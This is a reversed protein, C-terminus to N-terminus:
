AVSRELGPQTSARNEDQQSAQKIEDLKETLAAVKTRLGTFLVSFKELEFEPISAPGGYRDALFDSHVGKKRMEYAIVSETARAFLEHHNAWYKKGGHSTMSNAQYFFESGKNAFYRRNEVVFNGVREVLEGLRKVSGKININNDSNLKDKVMQVYIQKGDESIPSKFPMVKALFVNIMSDADINFSEGIKTGRLEDVLIGKLVQIKLKRENIRDHSEDSVIQHFVEPYEKRVENIKDTADRLAMGDFVIDIRYKKDYYALGRRDVAQKAEESDLPIALRAFDIIAGMQKAVNILEKRAGQRDNDVGEQSYHSTDTIYPTMLNSKAGSMKYIWNDFAHAWEHALAGAGAKRTFNIVTMGPEFHAMAKGRGRAGWAIGLTGGMGIHYPKIGFFESLDHLADASMDIWTQREKNPVWNGFQGGSLGFHSMFEDSSISKGERWDTMGVREVGFLHAAVNSEQKDQTLSQDDGDEEDDTDVEAEVTSKTRTKKTPMHKDYERNLSQESTEGLAYAAHRIHDSFGWKKQLLGCLGSFDVSYPADLGGDKLLREAPEVIWGRAIEEGFLRQVKYQSTENNIPTVEGAMAVQFTTLINRLDEDSRSMAERAVAIATMYFRVGFETDHGLPSSIHRGGNSVVSSYKVAFANQVMKRFLAVQMDGGAEKVERLDITPWISERRISGGATSSQLALVENFPTSAIQQATVVAYMHKKAGHIVRGFDEIKDKSSGEVYAVKNLVAEQALDSPAEQEAGVEMESSIPAPKELAALEHQEPQENDRQVDNVPEVESSSIVSQDIVEPERYISNIVADRGNEIYPSLIDSIEHNVDFNQITRTIRFLVEDVKDMSDSIPDEQRLMFFSAATHSVVQIVAHQIHREMDPQHLPSVRMSEVARAAAICGDKLLESVAGYMKGANVIVETIDWNPDDSFNQTEQYQKIAKAAIKLLRIDNTLLVLNTEDEGRQMIARDSVAFLKKPSYDGQYNDAEVLAALAVDSSFLRTPLTGDADAHEATPYANHLVMARRDEMTEIPTITAQTDAIPSVWIYPNYTVTKQISPLQINENIDVDHQIKGAKSFAATIAKPTFQSEKNMILAPFRGHDFRELGIPFGNFQSRSEILRSMADDRNVVSNFLIVFADEAQWLGARHYSLDLWNKM